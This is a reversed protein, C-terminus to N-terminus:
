AARTLSVLPIDIQTTRGAPITVAQTAPALGTYFVRLQATGAPVHALIFRGDADTFTELLTGDVTLRARELNAGTAVHFVRGEIAGTPVAAARITALLVCAVVFASVPPFRRTMAPTPLPQPFSIRQNRLPSGNKPPRVEETSLSATVRLKQRMRVGRKDTAKSKSTGSSAVATKAASDRGSFMTSM